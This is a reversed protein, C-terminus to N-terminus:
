RAWIREEGEWVERVRRLGRVSNCLFIGTARFLDERRLVRETTRREELLRRRFVGPLVGSALPPTVWGEPLILVANHIAGETIEDRENMFLADTFDRANAYHLADDYCARLTTKHRLFLNGSRQREPWLLVRVPRDESEPIAAATCEFRGDRDLLLRVRSRPATSERKVRELAETASQPDFPRDFYEASAAMRELHEARLFYEGRELLLTEILSFEEPPERTLFMTKTRCEEYEQAAVSDAVIGSGVGMRAERGHLVVTRIAVNFEATRDPAIYGITGTYVGRAGTELAHLRRMTHVKPAGVISGSPFLARFIDEFRADPHLRGEVTSTMQLVSPYREVHFLETAKVSGMRCIRGLDNRLLDVIM